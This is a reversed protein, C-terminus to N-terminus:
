DVPLEVAQNIIKKVKKIEAAIELVKLNTKIRTAAEKLLIYWDPALDKRLYFYNTIEHGTVECLLCM